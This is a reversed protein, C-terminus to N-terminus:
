NEGLVILVDNLPFIILISLTMVLPFTQDKILKERTIKLSFTYLTTQLILLLDLIWLRFFFPNFPGHTM